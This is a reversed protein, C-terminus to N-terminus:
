EVPHGVRDGLARISDDMRRLREEYMARDALRASREDDLEKQLAELRGRPVLRETLLLLIGFLLLGSTTIRQLLDAWDLPSMGGAGMRAVGFRRPEM